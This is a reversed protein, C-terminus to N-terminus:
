LNENPYLIKDWRKVTAQIQDFAIQYDLLRSLGEAKENQDLVDWIDECLMGVNFKIDSVSEDSYSQLEDVERMVREYDRARAADWLHELRSNIGSLKRLLAQQKDSIQQKTIM